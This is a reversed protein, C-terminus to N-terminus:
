CEGGSVYIGKSGIMTNVGDPFKKIIDMCQADRLAQMVEKDTADPRGMRINDMISMKLLKSDQFVYSVYNMLENIPINRVDAGGIKISGSKVDWFRVILSALTTKGSGSSGVLAIHEGSKIPFNIVDVANNGSDTYSFM